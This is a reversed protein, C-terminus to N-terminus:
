DNERDLALISCLVDEHSPREREHKDFINALYMSEHNDVPLSRYTGHGDNNSTSPGAAAPSRIMAETETEAVEATEKQGEKTNTDLTADESCSFRQINNKINHLHACSGEEHSLLDPSRTRWLEDTPDNPGDFSSFSSEDANNKTKSKSCKSKAEVIANRSTRSSFNGLSTTLMVSKVETRM